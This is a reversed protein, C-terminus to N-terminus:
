ARSRRTSGPLYNELLAEAGRVADKATELKDLALAANTGYDIESKPLGYDKPNFGTMAKGLADEIDMLWRIYRLLLQEQEANM